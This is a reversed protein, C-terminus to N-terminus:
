YRNLFRNEVYNDNRFYNCFYKDCVQVTLLAMAQTVQTVPATTVELFTPVIQWRIACILTAQVNM